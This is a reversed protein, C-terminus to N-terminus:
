NIATSRFVRIWKKAGLLDVLTILELIVDKRITYVSLQMRKFGCSLLLRRWHDRARNAGTPFDFVVLCLEAKPLLANKETIITKIAEVAANTSITLLFHDGEQKATLYKRQRMSRLVRKKQQGEVIKLWEKEPIACEYFISRRRYSPLSPLSLYFESLDGIIDSVIQQAISKKSKPKKIKM